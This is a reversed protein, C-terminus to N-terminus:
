RRGRIGREGRGEGERREGEGGGEGGRGRFSVKSRPRLQTGRKIEGRIARESELSRNIFPFAGRFDMWKSTMVSLSRVSCGTAAGVVAGERQPTGRLYIEYTKRRTAPLYM